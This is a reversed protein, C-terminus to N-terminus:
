LFLCLTKTCYDIPSLKPMYKNERKIQRYSIFTNCLKVDVWKFIKWRTPSCESECALHNIYEPM